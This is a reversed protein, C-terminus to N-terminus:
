TKSCSFLFSIFSVIAMLRGLVVDVAKNSPGCYLVCKNAKLKRNTLAFVYALHAGTESKGTGINNTTISFYKLVTCEKGPPGQILFFPHEIAKEIAKCQM